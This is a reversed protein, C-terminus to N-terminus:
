GERRRAPPLRDAAPARRDSRGMKRVVTLRRWDPTADSRQGCGEFEFGCYQCVIGGELIYDDRADNPNVRLVQTDDSWRFAAQEGCHPCRGDMLLLEHETLDQLEPQASGCNKCGEAADSVLMQCGACRGVPPSCPDLVFIDM